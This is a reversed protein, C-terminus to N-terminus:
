PLVECRVHRLVVVKAGALRLMSDGVKREDNSNRVVVTKGRILAYPRKNSSAGLRPALDFLGAHVSIRTLFEM